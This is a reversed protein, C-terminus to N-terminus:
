ELNRGTLVTEQLNLSQTQTWLNTLAVFIEFHLVLYLFYLYALLYSQTQPLLQLHLDPVMLQETLSASAPVGSTNWDHQCGRLGEKKGGWYGREWREQWIRIWSGNRSNWLEHEIALWGRFGAGGALWRVFGRETWMGGGPAVRWTSCACVTEQHFRKLVLFASPSRLGGGLLKNGWM